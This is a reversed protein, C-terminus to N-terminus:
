RADHVIRGGLLTVAVGPDLPSVPADSGMTLTVGLELMTRLMFSFDTRDAWCQHTVDRDDLLHAPQVSAIAVAIKPPM